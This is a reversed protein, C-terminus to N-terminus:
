LVGVAAGRVVCWLFVGVSVMGACPVEVPLWSVSAGIGDGGAQEIAQVSGQCVFLIRRERLGVGDTELLATIQAELQDLLSGPLRVAQVPCASVCLGCGDCRAKNVWINRGNRELAGKPCVRVCLACGTDAVCRQGEISAVVQYQIPPLTFLARRSVKQSLPPFYPKLNETGGGSYARAKAIAAALLLKAKETARGREPVLTCFGGLNVVEVALPDLGVMRAQFQMEREAYERSCVGMVARRTGSAAAWALEGPAHCLGAVARAQVGEQTEGLWRCLEDVDLGNGTTELDRCLLIAVTAREPPSGRATLDFETM